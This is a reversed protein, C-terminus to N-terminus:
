TISWSKPYRRNGELVGMGLPASRCDDIPWKNPPTPGLENRMSEPNKAHGPLVGAISRGKQYRADIRRAARGGRKGIKRTGAGCPAADIANAGM